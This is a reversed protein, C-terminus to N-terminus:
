FSFWHRKPAPAPTEHTDPIVGDIMAQAIYQAPLDDRAPAISRHAVGIFSFTITKATADFTASSGAYELTATHDTAATDVGVRAIAVPYTHTDLIAAVEKATAIM